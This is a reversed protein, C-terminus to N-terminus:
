FVAAFTMATLDSANRTYSTWFETLSMKSASGLSGDAYAKFVLGQFFEVPWIALGLAEGECTRTRPLPAGLPRPCDSTGFVFKAFYDGANHCHYKGRKSSNDGDAYATNDGQEQRRLRGRHLQWQMNKKWRRKPSPRWRAKKMVQM